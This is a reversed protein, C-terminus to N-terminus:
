WHEKLHRVESELDAMRKEMVKVYEVLGALALNGYAVSLMGDQDEGVAEPFVKQVSQASVGIRREASAIDTYEFADIALLRPVIEALPTLHKKLRLDSSVLVGNAYISGGVFLSASVLQYNTGDYYLYRTTAANLYIVGTGDGRSAFIDRGAINSGAYIAGVATIASAVTLAGGLTTDGSTLNIGFLAAEFTDGTLARRQITLSGQSDGYPTGFNLSCSKSASPHRMMLRTDGNASEFYQGVIPAFSDM